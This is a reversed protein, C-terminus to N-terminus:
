AEWAYSLSQVDLEHLLTLPAGNAPNGGDLHVLTLDDPRIRLVGLDFECHHNPCLIIINGEVDAGDHGGGLPRIHHAEAYLRGDALSISHGCVQCRHGYHVKLERALLTDRIVRLVTVEVRAPPEDLDTAVPEPVSELAEGFPDYGAGSHLGLGATEAM